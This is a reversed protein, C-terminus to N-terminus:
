AASDCLLSASRKSSDQIDTSEQALLEEKIGSKSCPTSESAISSEGVTNKRPRQTLTAFFARWLLPYEKPLAVRLYHPSGQQFIGISGSM